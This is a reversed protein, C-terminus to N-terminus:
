RAWRAQQRTTWQRASLSIAIQQGGCRALRALQGDGKPRAAHAIPFFAHAIRDAFGIQGGVGQQLVPEFRGPGVIAPQRLFGGVVL